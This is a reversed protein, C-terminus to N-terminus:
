LAVNWDHYLYSTFTSFFNLRFGGPYQTIKIKLPCFDQVMIIWLMNCEKKCKELALSTIFWRYHCPIVHFKWFLHTIVIRTFYSMWKRPSEYSIKKPTVVSSKNCRWGKFFTLFFAVHKLNNHYLIKTRQFDFNTLIRTSEFNKKLM